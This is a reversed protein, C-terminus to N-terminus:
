PSFAVSITNETGRIGHIFVHLCTRGACIHSEYFQSYVCRIASGNRGLCENEEGTESEHGSKKQPFFGREDSM